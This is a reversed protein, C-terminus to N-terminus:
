ARKSVHRFRVICLQLVDVVSPRTRRLTLRNM